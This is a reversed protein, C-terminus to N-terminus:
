ENKQWLEIEQQIQRAILPAAHERCPSFSPWDNFDIFFIEGNNDIICDGGYVTLGLVGAAMESLEKLKTESFEYRNVERKIAIEKIDSDKFKNYGVEDPYFWYFFSQNRVGYFKVLDGEIHKNVVVERIGRRHFKKTVEIAEQQTYCHSVDEQVQTQSDGRKIWCEKIDKEKLLSFLSDLNRLILSKPQPISNDEFLSFLKLRNCNEIAKSSNIVLKGEKEMKRLISLSAEDRCMNIVVNEHPYISDLEEEEILRIPGYWKKLNNMVTQLIAADAEVNNPSYKEARRVGVIHIKSKGSM